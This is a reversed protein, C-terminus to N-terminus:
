NTLASGECPLPGRNSDAIAWRQDGKSEPNELGPFPVVNSAPESFGRFVRPVWPTPADNATVPSTQVFRDLNELVVTEHGEFLHGYRDLVVSVSTHGAWTAIQKPSAGAAIWLAVATHRMDHIRLPAVGAARIAPNWFRSRWASARLVGGHTGGFVLARPDGEVHIALHEALAATVTAPMPVTRRVARTKPAGWYIEGRVEVANEVVRIMGSRLDVNSRRLGALESLRLGCYADLTILARYRQDIADALRAIETPDLFRMEQPEIKPLAIRRCPSQAILDADVASRLIKALTQYTKHVTAPALGSAALDAVWRRVELPTISGLPHDGFRPLVHTRVYSDDRARSSPRLDVTTAQWDTIWDRLLLKAGAPDRWTGDSRDINQHDIFSLAARKTDFRRAHERGDPGRYRAEYRGNPTKRVHSM